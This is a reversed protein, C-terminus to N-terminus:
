STLVLKQMFTPIDSIAQGIFSLANQIDTSISNIFNIFDSSVWNAFNELASLEDSFFTGLDGLNLLFSM